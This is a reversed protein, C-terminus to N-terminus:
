SPQGGAMAQVDALVSKHMEAMGDEDGDEFWEGLRVKVMVGALTM